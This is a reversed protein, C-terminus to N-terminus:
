GAMTEVFLAADKGRHEPNFPCEALIIRRGQQTRSESTVQINHKRIFEDIDFETKQGYQSQRSRRTKQKALKLKRM